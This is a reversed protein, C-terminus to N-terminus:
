DEEWMVRPVPDNYKVTVV